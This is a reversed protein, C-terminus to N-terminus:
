PDIIIVAMAGYRPFGSRAVIAFYVGTTTVTVPVGRGSEVEVVPHNPEAPFMLTATAELGNALQFQVRGGRTAVVAPPSLTAIHQRDDVGIVVTPIDQERNEMAEGEMAQRNARPSRVSIRTM